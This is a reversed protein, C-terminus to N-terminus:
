PRTAGQHQLCLCTRAPQGEAASPRSSIADHPDQRRHYESGLEYRQEEADRDPFPTDSGLWKEVDQRRRQIVHPLLKKRDAESELEPDLLGLLSRFSEEIGSHPTATVLILHRSRDKALDCLLEYRQHEIRGGGGSHDRRM